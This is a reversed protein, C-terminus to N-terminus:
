NHPEDKIVLVMREYPEANEITIQMEDLERDTYYRAVYHSYFVIKDEMGKTLIIRKLTRQLILHAEALQKCQLELEDYRSQLNKHEQSNKKM